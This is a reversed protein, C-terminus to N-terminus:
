GLSFTATEVQGSSARDIPPIGTKETTDIGEMTSESGASVQHVFIMIMIVMCVSGSVIGTKWSKKM